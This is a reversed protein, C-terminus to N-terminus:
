KSVEMKQRFEMYLIDQNAIVSSMVAITLAFSFSGALMICTSFFQDLVSRSIAVDGYGVTFLAQAVVYVAANIESLHTPDSSLTSYSDDKDSVHYLWSEAGDRHGLYVLVCALSQLVILLIIILKTVEMMASNAGVHRKTLYLEIFNWFSFYRRLRLMQFLLFLVATSKKTGLVIATQYLPFVGALDWVLGRRYYHHFIQRSSTRVLGQEEYCFKRVRFYFDLLFILQVLAGLFVINGQEPSESRIGFVVRYPVLLSNLCYAGFNGSEWWARFRSNPLRWAGIPRRIGSETVDSRLQQSSDDDIVVIEEFSNFRNKSRGKPTLGVPVLGSKRAPSKPTMPSNPDKFHNTSITLNKGNKKKRPPTSPPPISAFSARKPSDDIQAQPADIYVKSRSPKKHSAQLSPLM